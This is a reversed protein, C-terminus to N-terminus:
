QRLESLSVCLVGLVILATGALQGGTMREKLVLAAAAPVGAYVLSMAPFALTLPAHQLVAIWAIMEVLWLLVGAWAPSSSAVAAAYRAKARARDAAVKFCLERGVEALVCFAILVVVTARM